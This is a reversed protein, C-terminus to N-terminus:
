KKQWKKQLEAVEGQKEAVEHVKGQFFPSENKYVPIFHFPFNRQFFLASSGARRLGFFSCVDLQAAM